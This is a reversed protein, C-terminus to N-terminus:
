SLRDRPYDCLKLLKGFLSRVAELQQKCYDASPTLQNVDILGPYKKGIAKIKNHKGEDLQQLDGYEHAIFNRVQRFEDLQVWEPYAEVDFKALASLYTKARSLTDNSRLDTVKLPLAKDNKVYECYGLLHHELLTYVLLIFAYRASPVFFMRHNNEIESLTGFYEGEDSEDIPPMVEDKEIKLIEPLQAEMASIFHGVASLDYNTNAFRLDIIMADNRHLTGSRRLRM